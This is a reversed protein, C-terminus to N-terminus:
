GEALFYSCDSTCKINALRISVNRRKNDEIDDRNVSECIIDNSIVFSRKELDIIIDGPKYIKHIVKVPVNIEINNTTTRSIPINNFDKIKISIFFSSM